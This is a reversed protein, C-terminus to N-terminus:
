SKSHFQNYTHQNPQIEIIMQISEKKIPREEIEMLLKLQTVAAM